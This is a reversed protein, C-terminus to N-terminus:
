RQIYWPFTNEWESSSPGVENAYRLAKDRLESRLRDASSIAGSELRQDRLALVSKAYGSLASPEDCWSLSSSVLKEANARLENNPVDGVELWKSDPFLRDVLKWLTLYVRTCQIPDYGM